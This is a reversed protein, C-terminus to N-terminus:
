LIVSSLTIWLDYHVEAIQKTCSVNFDKSLLNDLRQKFIELSHSYVLEYPKWTLLIRINNKFIHLRIKSRQGETWQNQGQGEVVTYFCKEIQCAKLHNSIITKDERLMGNPLSFKGLEESREKCSKIELGSVM